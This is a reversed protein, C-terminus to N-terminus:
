GRLAAVAPAVLTFISPYALFDIAGPVTGELNRNASSWLHTPYYRWPAWLVSKQPHDLMWTNHVACNGSGIDQIPNGPFAGWTLRPICFGLMSAVNVNVSGYRLAAVAADVADAHEQMVDPSVMISCSLTGWCRENAFKVAAEMFREPDAGTGPLAVEQLVGCWNETETRAESPSLGAKFLWPLYTQPTAGAEPPVATGLAEIGPLSSRFTQARKESGPYWAVRRPERALRQRVAEVLADRLPWEAATVLLEAKTCNHGANHVMGAVIEDAYYEIDAPTWAGPVVIYPTVCGLEADVRKALLPKGVKPQKGWVLADFTTASGTLHISEVTMHHALFTGVDVGGYVVEFFGAEVLPAFARRLFPGLWENVPNMKCVVVADDVVLKHLVDMAAVATQNGAGLVLAVSGKGAAKRRYLAGQSPPKGPEIWVEGRMGGFFISEMGLPFTDVVWQGDPRQTAANPAPTGGADLAEALDRLGWTVPLWCMWEEGIGFGYSGKAAEAAEAAEKSVAITTKLTERLLEAREAAPLVAWAQKKGDLSELIGQLEAQSTAPIATFGKPLVVPKYAPKVPGLAYNLVGLLPQSWSGFLRFM